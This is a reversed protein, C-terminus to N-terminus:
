AIKSRASDKIELARKMSQVALHSHGRQELSNSRRYYNNALAFGADYQDSGEVYHLGRRFAADAAEYHGNCNLIDAYYALAYALFINSGSGASLAEAKAMSDQAAALNNEAAQVKALGAYATAIWVPDGVQSACDIADHQHALAQQYNNELLYLQGMNHHLKGAMDSDPNAATLQLGRHNFIFARDLKGLEKECIAIGLCAKAQELPQGLKYALKLAESFHDQPSIRQGLVIMEMGVNNYLKLRQVTNDDAKRLEERHLDYAKVYQGVLYYGNGLLFYVRDRLAPAIKRNNKVRELGEELVIIAETPRQRKLEVEGKLACYRLFASSSLKRACLKGLMEDAEDVRNERLAYYIEFLNNDEGTPTLNLKPSM